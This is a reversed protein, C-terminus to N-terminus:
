GTLVGSAVSFMECPTHYNLCKGPSNNLLKEFQNIEASPIKNFNTGEPYFRRIFGNVQEVAATM